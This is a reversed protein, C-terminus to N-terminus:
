INFNLHSYITDDREWKDPAPFVLWELADLILEEDTPTHEDWSKHYMKGEALTDWVSHEPEIGNLRDGYYDTVVYDGNDYTAVIGGDEVIITIVKEEHRIVRYKM